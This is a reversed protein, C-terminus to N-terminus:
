YRNANELELKKVIKYIKPLNAIILLCRNWINSPLASIASGYVGPQKIDRLVTSAGKIVVNDAIVLHDSIASKGGIIVNSGIKSSGAIGTCGSIITNAGISVNHGIQCQNDIKVGSAIKTSTITGRDITTGAGIEVESEIEVSGLHPIKYWAASALPEYGFGDAGIVAGSHVISKSGIKTNPYITVNPKIVVSEAIESHSMVVTNAGIDVGKAIVVHEAIVVNPGINADKAIIATSAVNASPDIGTFSKTAIQLELLQAFALRPQKVAIINNAKPIDIGHQIVITEADINDLSKQDPTGFCFFIGGKGICFIKTEPTGQLLQGDIIDLINKITIPNIKM